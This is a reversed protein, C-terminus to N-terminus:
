PYLQSVRRVCLTTTSPHWDLSAATVDPTGCTVTRSGNNKRTYILSMCLFILEFSRSGHGSLDDYISMGTWLLGVHGM